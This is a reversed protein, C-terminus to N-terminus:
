IIGREKWRQIVGTYDQKYKLVRPKIVFHFGIHSIIRDALNKGAGSRMAQYLKDTKKRIQKQVAKESVPDQPNRVKLLMEGKRIGGSFLFLRRFVQLVRHGDANEYVSVGLCYKDSLLQEMVFHGRDIITKTQANVNSAYTPSGMILGDSQAILKSLEEIGDDKIICSGTRYCSKCGTCYHMPHDSVHFYKIEVDGNTELQRAMENLITAVAGNKRPSGNIMTVIM